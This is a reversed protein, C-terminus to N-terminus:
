FRLPRCTRSLFGSVNKNERLLGPLRFGELNGLLAGISLFAKKCPMKWREWFGWSEPAGTFSDEMLTGKISDRASLHGVVLARRWGDILTGPIMGYQIRRCTKSQSLLQWPSDSVLSSVHMSICIYLVTLICLCNMYWVNCYFTVVQIIWIM